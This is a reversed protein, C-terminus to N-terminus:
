KCNKLIKLLENILDEADQKANKNGSNFATQGVGAARRIAEYDRILTKLCTIGTDNPNELLEISEKLLATNMRAKNILTRALLPPLSKATRKLQTSHTLDLIEGLQFIDDPSPQTPIIAMDAVNLVSNMFRFEFACGDIVLYDLDGTMELATEISKRLVNESSAALALVPPNGPKPNQLNWELLSNQPDTEGIAVKYGKLTLGKAITRTTNSKGVGGKSNTIAIIIPREM